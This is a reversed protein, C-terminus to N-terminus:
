LRWYQGFKRIHDKIEVLHMMIELWLFIFPEGDQLKEKEHSWEVV